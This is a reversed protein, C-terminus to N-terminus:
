AHLLVKEAENTQLRIIPIGGFGVESVKLNTKGLNIYKM